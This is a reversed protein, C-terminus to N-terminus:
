RSGSRHRLDKIGSAGEQDRISSPHQGMRGSARTTRPTPHHVIEFAHDNEGIAFTDVKAEHTCVHLAAGTHALPPTEAWRNLLLFHAPKAAVVAELGQNKLVEPLLSKALYAFDFPEYGRFYHLPGFTQCCM